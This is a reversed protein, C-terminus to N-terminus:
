LSITAGISIVHRFKFSEEDGAHSVWLPLDYRIMLGRTKGLYDPINISLMFGPGADTLGRIEEGDNFGLSTGADFFVYSRLNAFQGVMPINDFVEDLPNPYEFELNVASLSNYLPLQSNNLIDIDRGVYGRLNGGGAFQIDGAEIWSPPITGRARTLGSNMWERASKMSRSFQYEPATANSSVGTYLRGYLTFDDSITVQQHFSAEGRGFSDYNGAINVVSGVSLLYRGLSNINTTSLRVTNLFLWEDQWLQPYLLYDDNFHHEGRFGISLETYNLEEFGEQWRKNFSVQHQQFGTRYSSELSVSGENGFDSIAPIPETYSLYYSLPQDPLKTGLWLGADLRHPGEGFTGPVRGRVRVGVRVGDVSNYWLDPAPMIDYSGSQAVGQSPMLFGAFCAAFIFLTNKISARVMKM